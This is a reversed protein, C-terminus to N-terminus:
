ASIDDANETILAGNGSWGNIGKVEPHNPNGIIVIKYGNDSHNKVIKQIDKVFPCTCDIVNLKKEAAINFTEEPEGHTRILLTDGCSLNEEDLSTITKIGANKLKENVIENHIIEGLIYNNNGKLSYAANIARKVGFCFGSNKSKIVIMKEKQPARM